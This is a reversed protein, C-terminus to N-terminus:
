PEQCLKYAWHISCDSPDGMCSGIIKYAVAQIGFHTGTFQNEYVPNIPQLYCIKKYSNQRSILYYTYLMAVRSM